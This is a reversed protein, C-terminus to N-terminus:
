LCLHYRTSICLHTWSPRPTRAQERRRRPRHQAGLAAEDRPPIPQTAPRPTQHTGARAGTLLRAISAATAPNWTAHAALPPLPAGRPALTALSALPPAAAAAAVAAAFPALPAGCPALSAALRM